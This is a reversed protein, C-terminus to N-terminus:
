KLTILKKLANPLRREKVCHLAKEWLSVAKTEIFIAKYSVSPHRAAIPKIVGLWWEKKQITCNANQGNPLRKNAPFCAVNFLLFKRAYAFMEDLIWPVDEEPCHELVGTSIVGDFKGEPLRSFPEFAPDYGVIEEVGWHDKILSVRTGDPLQVPGKYQLGKGCGYDLIIKAGHKKTLQRITQVYPLLRNGPFVKEAPINLFREGNVHMHHHQGILEQYKPSPYNRSYKAATESRM